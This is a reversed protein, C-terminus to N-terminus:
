LWSSQQRVKMTIPGDMVAERQVVVDGRMLDIQDGGDLELTLEGDLVVIVDHTPTAHM